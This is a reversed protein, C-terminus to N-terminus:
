THLRSKSIEFQNSYIEVFSEDFYEIVMSNKFTLLFQLFITKALMSRSGVVWLYLTEHEVSQVLMAQLESPHYLAILIM